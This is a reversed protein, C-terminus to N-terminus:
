DKPPDWKRWCHSCYWQGRASWGELRQRGCEGCEHWEEEKSQVRPSWGPAFPAPAEQFVDAVPRFEQGKESSSSGSFHPRICLDPPLMKREWWQRMQFNSFPGRRNAQRDVYEWSGCSGSGAAEAASSDAAGGEVVKAVASRWDWVRIVTFDM